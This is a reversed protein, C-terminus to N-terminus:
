ENRRYEDLAAQIQEQTGLYGSKRPNEKLHFKANNEANQKDYYKRCESAIASFYKEDLIEAKKNGLGSELHSEIEYGWGWGPYRKLLSKTKKLCEAADGPSRDVARIIEEQLGPIDLLPIPTSTPIEGVRYVVCNDFRQVPEAYRKWFEVYQIEPMGTLNFNKEKGSMMSAEERQYVIYQIGEERLKLALDGALKCNEAWKLLIPKKWFFDVYTTRRLPYTQYVGFALVKDQTESIKEITRYACYTDLDFSYNRKLRILSDELGLASAYPTTTQVQALLTLAISVVIGLAFVIRRVVGSEQFAKNWLFSALLLLALCGGSGQRLNTCFFGWLGFYVSSFVILYLVKKDSPKSMVWPLSMFVLPTWCAGIGNNMTFFASVYHNFLSLYNLGFIRGTDTWLASEMGPDFGPPGGFVGTVLPYFPNGNALENRLYWPLPCLAFFVFVAWNMNNKLTGRKLFLFLILFGALLMVATYKTAFAAGLFFLSTKFWITKQPADLLELFAILSLIEFLALHGEVYGWSFLALFCPGTMFFLPGLYGSYGKSKPYAALIWATLGVSLAMSAKSMFEGGMVWFGAWILETFKPIDGTHNTWHFPLFHNRAVERAFRFHDLVADWIIPPSFFEFMWIGSAIVGIGLLWNNITPIKVSNLFSKIELFGSPLFPLFFALVALAYFLGNVALGFCYCSFLCLVATSAFPSRLKEDMKGLFVRSLSQACGVWGLGVPIFLLLGPLRQRWYDGALSTDWLTDELM